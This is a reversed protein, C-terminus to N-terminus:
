SDISSEPEDSGHRCRKSIARIYANLRPALEGTLASLRSLEDQGLLSRVCARRLWHITEYLWGRAMGAFRRNDRYTIRGAGEAINAAVADASRIM